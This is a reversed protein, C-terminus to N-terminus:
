PGTFINRGVQGVAGLDSRAVPSPINISKVAAMSDRAIKALEASVPRFGAALHIAFNSELMLQYGPPLMLTQSVTSLNALTKWSNIHLTLAASPSPYVSLTATSTASYEGDYYIHTPYTNGVTKDVIMGYQELSVIQVPTDYGSADRVFCPDVLKVPRTTNITAGPGITYTLTSATMAHTDETIAYSMLRNITLSEIFTNLEALTETQENTTLTAGRTKEGIMRMSRLIMTSVTAM